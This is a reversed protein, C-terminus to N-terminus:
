TLMAGRRGCRDWIRWEDCSGGLYTSYVLASGSPNLKTVFADAAIPLHRKAQPDDPLRRAHRCLRKLVHRGRRLCQRRSDVTISAGVESGSGGLFTSYVLSSGSPDIKFVFADGGGNAQQLPSRLPFDTSETYGTVYANGDNDM